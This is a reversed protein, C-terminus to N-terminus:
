LSSGWIVKDQGAQMEYELDSLPEIGHPGQGPEGFASFKKLDLNKLPQVKLIVKCGQVCKCNCHFVLTVLPQNKFPGETQTDSRGFAPSFFFFCIFLTM